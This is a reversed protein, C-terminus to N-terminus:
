GDLEAVEFIFDGADNIDTVLVYGDNPWDTADRKCEEALGKVLKKAYDDFPGYYLLTDLRDYIYCNM